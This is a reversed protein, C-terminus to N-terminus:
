YTILFALWIMMLLSYSILNSIAVDKLRLDESLTLKLILFESFLTVIYNPIAVITSLAVLYPFSFKELLAANTLFTVVKGLSDTINLVLVFLLGILTTIFNALLLKKARIWFPIPYRKLYFAEILSVFVTLLILLVPTGYM